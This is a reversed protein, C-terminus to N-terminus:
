ALARVSGLVRGQSLASDLEQEVVLAQGQEAAQGLEQEVVPVQVRV